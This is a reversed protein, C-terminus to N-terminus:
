RKFRAVIKITDVHSMFLSRCCYREFGFDDMIKGMKEGNKVRENFTEWLHAVPNGCTMCRIPIMM